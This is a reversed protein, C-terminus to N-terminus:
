KKGMEERERTVQSQTGCALCFILGEEQSFATGLCVSCQNAM